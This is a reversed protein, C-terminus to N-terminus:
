IRKEMSRLNSERSGSRPAPNPPTGSGAGTITMKFRRGAPGKNAKDAYVKKAAVAAHNGRRRAEDFTMAGSLYQQIILKAESKTQDSVWPRNAEDNSSLGNYLNLIGRDQATGKALRALSANLREGETGKGVGGTKSQSNALWRAQVDDPITVSTEGRGYASLVLERARKTTLGFAGYKSVLNTVAAGIQRERIVADSEQRATEKTGRLPPSASPGSRGPVSSFDPLPRGGPTTAPPQPSPQTAEGSGPANVQSVPVGRRAAVLMKWGYWLFHSAQAPTVKERQAYARIEEETPPAPEGENVAQGPQPAAVPSKPRQMVDAATTALEGGLRMAIGGPGGLAAMAANNMATPAATSAGQLAAAQGEPTMPATAQQPAPSTAAGKSQTKIEEVAKDAEDAATKAAEYRERLIRSMEPNTSDVNTLYFEFFSREQTRALAAEKIAADLDNNRRAEDIRQRALALQSNKFELNQARYIQNAKDRNGQAELQAVRRFHEDQARYVSTILNADRSRIALGMVDPRMTLKYLADPDSQDATSFIDALQKRAASSEKAATAEELAAERQAQVIPANRLGQSLGGLAQMGMLGLGNAM